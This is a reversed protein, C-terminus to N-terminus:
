CKGCYWRENYRYAWAIDKDFPGACIACQPRENNDCNKSCFFSGLLGCELDKHAIIDAGLDGFEKLLSVFGEEKQLIVLDVICTKVMLERAWNNSSTRTLIIRFTELLDAINRVGLPVNDNVLLAEMKQCVEAQLGNMGYKEATAYVEAHPVLADRWWNTGDHDYNMDYIYRLLALM